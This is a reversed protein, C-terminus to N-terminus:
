TLLLKGIVALSLLVIILIMPFPIGGTPIPVDDVGYIDESKPQNPDDIKFLGLHFLRNYIQLSHDELEDPMSDVLSALQNKAQLEEGKHIFCEALMRKAETYHPWYIKIYHYVGAAETYKQQLYLLKAKYRYGDIEKPALDILEDSLTLAYEMNDNRFQCEIFLRVVDKDQPNLRYAQNLYHIAETLQNEQLKRYGQERLEVFQGAQESDLALLGDYSLAPEYIQAVYFSYFESFDRNGDQILEREELFEKLDFLEEIMLWVQQPLYRYINLTEIMKNNLYSRKQLDWCIDSDFLQIWSDMTIRSPFDQYLSILQEVFLSVPTEPNGAIQHTDSLISLKPPANFKEDIARVEEEQSEPLLTPALTTKDLPITQITQEQMTTMIYDYAERLQQYGEPDVEPHHTKLQKSYARKITKIDQTAEIQLIAWPSM